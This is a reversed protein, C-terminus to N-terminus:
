NNIKSFDVNKFLFEKRPEVETGMLMSISEAALIADHITLVELRRETKNMMSNEMDEATM